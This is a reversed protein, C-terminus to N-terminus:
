MGPKGAPWYNLAASGSIGGETDNAYLPALYFPPNNPLVFWRAGNQYLTDMASYVCELYDVITTGPVQSDTFLAAEGLDNGGTWVVYVTDDKTLTPSFTPGGTAPNTANLDRVFGPIEDQIIAPFYASTGVIHRPTIDNSCVGGSVAYNYLSIQPDWTGNSTTSGTYQM